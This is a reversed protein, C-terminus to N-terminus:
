QHGGRSSQAGHHWERRRSVGCPMCGSTVNSGCFSTEQLAAQRAVGHSTDLARIIVQSTSGGGTALLTGRSCPPRRHRRTQPRRASGINEDVDMGAENGVDDGAALVVLEALLEALIEERGVHATEDSVCKAMLGPFRSPSIRSGLPKSFLSNSSPLSSCRTLYAYSIQM